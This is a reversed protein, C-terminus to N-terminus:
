DNKNKPRKASKMIFSVLLKTTFMSLCVFVTSVLLLFGIVDLLYYQYTPLESVPSKLHKAGKNRIFYETWWVARDLGTKEVDKSIKSMEIINTKYVPNHIVELIAGKFAEKTFNSIDVSKGLKQREMVKANSPQDWMFPIGVMPVQHFIAEELSQAGCHTIFLIVKPHGLLDFQPAWKVIKVNDPLKEMTDVEFKWLVNYPLEELTSIIVNKVDDSLLSSKINSGLSFYIVETESTDLFTQLDKPMPKNTDKIHISAGMYITNSGAPRVDHFMPNVNVLLLSMEKELERLDKAQQGFHNKVIETQRRYVWHYQLFWNFWNFLTSTLRGKFDLPTSVPLYHDPYAIPHLYNGMLAHIRYPADMPTVGIFPIKFREAFAMHVPNMVEVILLDFYESENKIIKKVDPQALQWDAVENLAKLLEFEVLFLPKGQSRGGSMIVSNGFDEMVAHSGSLDIEEINKQTPDRMPDTTLLTLHHGRDALTRWLPRFVMQHSFSPSFVCALIRAGEIIDLVLMITIARFLLKM